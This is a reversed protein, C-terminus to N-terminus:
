AVHRTLRGHPNLRNSGSAKMCKPPSVMGGEPSLCLFHGVMDRMEVVNGWWRRPAGPAMTMMTTTIVAAAMTRSVGPAVGIDGGLTRPSTAVVAKMPTTVTRRVTTPETLWSRM